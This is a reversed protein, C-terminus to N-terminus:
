RSPRELRQKPQFFSWLVVECADRGGGLQVSEEEWAGGERRGGGEVGDDEKGGEVGERERRREKM